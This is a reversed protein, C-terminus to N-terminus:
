TCEGSSSPSAETWDQAQRRMWQLNAAKWWSGKHPPQTLGNAKLLARIRNKVSVIRNVTGRRQQITARWQRVQLAPIHVPPM